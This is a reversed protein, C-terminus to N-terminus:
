KTNSIEIGSVRNGERKKTLKEIDYKNKNKFCRSSLIHPYIFPSDFVKRPKKFM